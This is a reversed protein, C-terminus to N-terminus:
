REVMDLGSDVCAQPTEGCGQIGAEDGCPRVRAALRQGPRAPIKVPQSLDTRSPRAMTASTPSSTMYPLSKTTGQRPPLPSSRPTKPSSPHAPALEPTVHLVGFPFHFYWVHGPSGSCFSLIHWADPGAPTPSPNPPIQRDPIDKRPIMRVQHNDKKGKEREGRPRKAIHVLTGHRLRTHKRIRM